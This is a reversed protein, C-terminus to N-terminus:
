GDMAAVARIWALSWYSQAWKCYHRLRVPLGKGDPEIDAILAGLEESDRALQTQFYRVILRRLVECYENSISVAGFSVPAEPRRAVYKGIGKWLLLLPAYQKQYEIRVFSRGLKVAPGIRDIFRRNFHFLTRSYLDGMAVEATHVLRYGGVMEQKVRNWIFLHQHLVDFRDLNFAKGSGERM